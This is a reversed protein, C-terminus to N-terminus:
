RALFLPVPSRKLLSQTVGGFFWERIRDHRYAGMVLLDARSSEAHRRLTEAVDDQPSLATVSLRVGHRALHPAFDAAPVSAPTEDTCGVTVMEVVEAARLFALADSAARVAQASGDWALMVRRASFADHGRSVIIVPRGSRFLVAEILERDFEFSHPASNLVTLDHRRAQAVLRDITEPFGLTAAEETCGVGAVREASALRLAALPRASPVADFAQVWPSDATLRQSASQITLHAGMAKALTLGYGIAAVVEARHSEKTAAILVDRIPSPPFCTDPPM